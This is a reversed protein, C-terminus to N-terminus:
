AAYWAVLWDRFQKVERRQAKVIARALARVQPHSTQRLATTAREIAQTHHVSMLAMFRIEFAAGGARDLERMQAKMEADMMPRARTGYWRQMWGQMRDIEASQTRVIARAVTKLQPHEAKELAMEAMDIAMAHHSVMETLFEKDYGSSPGSAQAAPVLALLAAALAAVLLLAPRTRHPIKM